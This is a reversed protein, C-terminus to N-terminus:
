DHRKPLKLEIGEDLESSPNPDICLELQKIIQNKNLSKGIFVLQTKPTQNHWNDWTVEARSGVLQFIYKRLHGKKNFDVFGKARYVDRPIKTNVFEQFRMPHLPKKSEWSFHSYKEHIHTKHDLVNKSKLQKKQLGIDKLLIYRIDVISKSTKFVRAKPNISTILKQIDVLRSKTILDIKNIIVFDSFLIQDTATQNAHANKTINEADIVSVISDLKVNVGITDRLTFALDRPESLGSAEIIIYDIKSDVTTFQDIAEQLDLTKLSCCICGSTLELQKDTKSKVLKSDINIDGFDNVVVGINLDKNTNLIHNLLTTKGSGLFGTIVTIPIKKKHIKRNM